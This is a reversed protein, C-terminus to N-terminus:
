IFRSLIRVTLYFKFKLHFFLFKKKKKPRPTPLRVRNSFVQKTFIFVQTQDRSNQNFVFLCPHHCVSQIGPSHLCLHHIPPETSSELCGSAPSCSLARITPAEWAPLPHHELIQSDHYSWSLVQVPSLGSRHSVGRWLVLHIAGSPVHAKRSGYAVADVCTHVKVCM